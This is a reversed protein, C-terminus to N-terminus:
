VAASSEDLIGANRLLLAGASSGHGGYHRAARQRERQCSRDDGRPATGACQFVVGLPKMFEERIIEGPHILRQLKKRM